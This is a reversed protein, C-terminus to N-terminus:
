IKAFFFCIFEYDMRRIIRCRILHHVVDVKTWIVGSGDKLPFQIPTMEGERDFEM